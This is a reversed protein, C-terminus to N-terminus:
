KKGPKVKEQKQKKPVVAKHEKGFRFLAAHSSGDVLTVILKRCSGAWASNTKWVYTYHSEASQLRSGAADVSGELRKESMGASCSVAVSTPSGAQVLGSRGAGEVSFKVAIASGAHVANMVPMNYIPQYFGVFKLRSPPTDAALVSISVTKISSRYNSSSPLFEVSIPQAVGVPLV